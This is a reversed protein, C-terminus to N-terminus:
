TKEVDASILGEQSTVTALAVLKTSTFSLFFIFLWAM